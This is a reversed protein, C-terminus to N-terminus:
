VVLVISAPFSPPFSQVTYLVLTALGDGVRCKVLTKSASYTHSPFPSWQTRRLHASNSRPNTYSKYEPAIYSCHVFLCVLICVWVFMCILVSACVIHIFVYEHAFTGGNYYLSLVQILQVNKRASHKQGLLGTDSVVAGLFCTRWRSWDWSSSCSSILLFLFMLLM